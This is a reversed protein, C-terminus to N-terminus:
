DNMLAQIRKPEEGLWEPHAATGDYISSTKFPEYAGDMAAKKTKALIADIESKTISKFTRIAELAQELIAISDLGAIVVSTPLNLAYHLCQIPTVTNSKLLAGNAMSKMGLVAIKDKVLEPLVLNAFSRFHADMVNLPMQVADFRFSHERAVQLMHLHIHPDKHGTFGIFRIKGAAKAEVLAANGGEPDFIRNPDEFRLVEHHQVLDIQDVQLRKLSEDISWLIHERSFDYRHPTGPPEDEFRIGCKTAVVLKDRWDPHKDLALGHIMECTTDGYIDAHDIFTYGAEVASELAKIGREIAVADVKDRDWSGSIRMAGYCLRTVQLDTTGLPITKM